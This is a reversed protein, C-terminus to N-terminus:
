VETETQFQAKIALIAEQAAKVGATYGSGYDGFDASWKLAECADDTMDLVAPAIIAISLEIIRLLGNHDGGADIVQDWTLVAGVEVGCREALSRSLATMPWGAYVARATREILDDTM